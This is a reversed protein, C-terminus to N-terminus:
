WTFAVVGWQDNTLMPEPLSKTSDPLLGNGSGNNVLNRDGYSMVLGCHTLKFSQFIKYYHPDLLIWSWRDENNCLCWLFPVFVQVTLNWQIFTHYMIHNYSYELRQVVAMHMTGLRESHKYSPISAYGSIYQSLRSWTGKKTNRKESQIYKQTVIFSKWNFKLNLVIQHSHRTGVEVVLNALSIPYLIAM